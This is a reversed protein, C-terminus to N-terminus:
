AAHQGGANLLAAIRNRQDDTLPPASAVTREIYDAIKAAALDRRASAIKEPDNPNLRITGGLKQRATLARSM